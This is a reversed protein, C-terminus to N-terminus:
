QMINVTDNWTNDNCALNLYYECGTQQADNVVQTMQAQTKSIVPRINQREVDDEPLNLNLISEHIDNVEEYYMYIFKGLQSQVSKVNDTYKYEMLVRVQEMNRKAQKCKLFKKEQCTKVYFALGKMTFKITWKVSPVSLADSKAKSAIDSM